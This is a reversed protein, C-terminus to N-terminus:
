DLCTPPTGHVLGEVFIASVENDHEEQLLSLFLNVSESFYFSKTIYLGPAVGSRRWGSRRRMRDACESWPLAGRFSRFCGTALLVAAVGLRSRHAGTALLKFGFFRVDQWRGAVAHAGHRAFFTSTYRDISDGFRRRIVLIFFLTHASQWRKVATIRAQAKSRRAVVSKAEAQLLKSPIM